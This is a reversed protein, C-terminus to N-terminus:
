SYESFYQFIRFRTQIISRKKALWKEPQFLREDKPINKDLSSFDWEVRYWYEYSGRLEIDKLGLAADLTALDIGGKINANINM